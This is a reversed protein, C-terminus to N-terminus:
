LMKYRLLLCVNKTFSMTYGFVTEADKKSAYKVRQSRVYTMFHLKKKNELYSKGLKKVSGRIILLRM